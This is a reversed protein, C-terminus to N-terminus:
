KAHKDVLNFVKAWLALFIIRWAYEAEASSAEGINGVVQKFKDVVIKSITPDGVLYDVTEVIDDIDVLQKEVMMKLWERGPAEFGVKSRRLRIRDDLIGKMADRHIRKTWGNALKYSGPTSLAFDALERDLFPVRAEISFAMSDRDANHLLRQLGEGTLDAALMADIYDEHSVAEGAAHGIRSRVHKRLADVYGRLFKYYDKKELLVDRFRIAEILARLIRGKRLLHKIYKYVYRQYGALLEDGGQGLLVVKVHRSAERMVMWEAIISSGTPPEDHHYVIKPLERWLEEIGEGVGVIRLEIGASRAALLAYQTEDREGGHKFAFAKPMDKSAWRELMNNDKLKRWAAAISSSDVGGSLLFGVPVDSRLHIRVSDLFLRRWEEVAAHYDGRYSVKRPPEWYRETRVELSGVDITLLTASPVREVENFFTESRDLPMYALYKLIAERRPTLRTLPMFAKIESALFVASGSRVMYLPKIGFPDRSAYVVEKGADFLIFAWMGRIRELLGHIGWEEYGHVLIETDCNCRLDHGRAELERALEVFNYIEGNFVVWVTRDENSMPQHGHVSLDLIALRRHALALSWGPRVSSLHVRGERAEPQTEDDYAEVLEGGSYYFLYGSDDPGRHRIRELAAHVREIGISEKAIIGLIGCM